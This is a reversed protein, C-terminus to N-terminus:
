ENELKGYVQSEYMVYHEKGDIEITHGQEVPFAVRDGVKLDTVKPGISIVTGRRTGGELSYNAMILGSETVKRKGDNLILVKSKLVQIM